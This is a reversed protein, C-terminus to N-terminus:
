EEKKTNKKTTKRRVKKVPKEEVVENKVNALATLNAIDSELAKIKDNLEVIQSAQSSMIEKSKALNNRLTEIEVTKILRFGFM